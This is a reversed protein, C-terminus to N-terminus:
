RWMEDRFVKSIRSVRGNVVFAQQGPELGLERVFFRCARTYNEISAQTPVSDLLDDLNDEPTVVVQAGEEDPSVPDALGLVRLLREAPM